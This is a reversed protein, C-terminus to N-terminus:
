HDLLIFMKRQFHIQDNTSPIEDKMQDFRNLHEMDLREYVEYQHIIQNEDHHFLSYRDTSEDNSFRLYINM